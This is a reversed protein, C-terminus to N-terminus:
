CGQWNTHTQWGDRAMIMKDECLTGEHIYEQNTKEECITQKEVVIQERAVVSTWVWDLLAKNGAFTNIIVVEVGNVVGGSTARKSNHKLLCCSTADSQFERKPGPAHRRALTTTDHYVYSCVIKYLQVNYICDPWYLRDDLLSITRSLSLMLSGCEVNAKRDDRRHYKRARSKRM